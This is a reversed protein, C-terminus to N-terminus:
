PAAAAAASSSTWSAPAVPPSAAPGVVVRSLLEIIHDFKGELRAQREAIDATQLHSSGVSAGLQKVCM